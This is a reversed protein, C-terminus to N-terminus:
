RRKSKRMPDRMAMPLWSIQITQGNEKIRFLTEFIAFFFCCIYDITGNRKKYFFLFLSCPILYYKSAIESDM